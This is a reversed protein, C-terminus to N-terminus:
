NMVTAFVINRPTVALVMKVSYWTQSWVSINDRCVQSLASLSRQITTDMPLWIGLNNMNAKLNSRLHIRIRDQMSTMISM